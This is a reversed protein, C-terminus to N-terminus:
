LDIDIALTPTPSPSNILNFWLLDSLILVQPLAHILLLGYFRHISSLVRYRVKWKQSTHTRRALHSFIVFILCYFYFHCCHFRCCRSSLPSFLSPLPFLLLIHFMKVIALPVRCNVYVKRWATCISMSENDIVLDCAVLQAVNACFIM